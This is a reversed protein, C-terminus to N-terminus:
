GTGSRTISRRALIARSCPPSAPSNDVGWARNPRVNGSTPACANWIVLAEGILRAFKDLRPDKYTRQAAGIAVKGILTGRRHFSTGVLGTKDKSNHQFGSSDTDLNHVPTGIIIGVFPKFGPTLEYSGRV